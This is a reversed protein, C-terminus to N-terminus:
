SDYLAIWNRDLVAKVGNHHPSMPSPSSTPLLPLEANELSKQIAIKCQNPGEMGGEGGVVLLVNFTCVCAAMCGVTHSWICVKDSQWGLKRMLVGRTKQRSGINIKSHEFQFAQSLIQSFYEGHERNSKWKRGLTSFIGYLSPAMAATLFQKLLKEAIVTEFHVIFMVTLALYGNVEIKKYAAKM